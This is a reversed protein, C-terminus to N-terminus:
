SGVQGKPAPIRERGDPRFLCTLPVLYEDSRGNPTILVEEANPITAPAFHFFLEYPRITKENQAGSKDKEATSTHVAARAAGVFFVHGQHLKTAVVEGTALEYWARVEVAFVRGDRRWLRWKVNALPAHWVM